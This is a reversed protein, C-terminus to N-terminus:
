HQEDCLTTFDKENCLEEIAEKPTDGFGAIGEQLDKGVFACWVNGDKSVTIKIDNQEV